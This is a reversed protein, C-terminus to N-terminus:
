PKEGVTLVFPRFPKAIGLRFVTGDIFNYIPLLRRTRHSAVHRYVLGAIHDTVVEFGAEQFSQAIRRGLAPRENETVGIPSYFPSTRDRYLYMFPNMRNPDTAMFRGGPRLIRFVEKALPQPDPFHHVVGNLLVGDFSEPPFSLHEIDGVSLDLGPYKRLGTEVLRSSIDVGAVRYGRRRLLEAFLGSGCGLDAVRSGEPLGTARVFLEILRDNTEPTFASYEGDQAHADFFAIEKGKDQTAIRAKM